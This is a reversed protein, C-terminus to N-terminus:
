IGYEKIKTLLTKYDIQLISAAKTKNGGTAQLVQKITRKEVDRVAIASLKKLPLLSLDGEDEQKDGVLFNLHEAKIVDDCCLLVARRIANKLERVNGPWPYQKLLSVVSDDIGHMRKNLEECAEIFFRQAFFPIDDVRERLPPLTIEFERLRFFLDERFLKEKVAQKIDSNTAAIIRVDVEVPRTSGLPYIRKEEVARLLKGQVYLSMNQVEDILITGHNAIEFFGKRSKEAGTFAGKEYGFLESEVLTEPITGMDVTIFPGTARTSLNHIARAVTTKGTGTEGQIVISFDSQAVQHIQEIIKKIPYSKGLLWELSTEVATNLRWVTMELRSKEIARKLTLILRDFKPPKVIFDYAGLKIAEVATEIDGYATILIVPVNPDIRKLEQLVEIGDMDPMKLDLIVASPKEKGFFRIAQRGSSVDVPLFGNNQLMECLALRIVMDDDVILIKNM